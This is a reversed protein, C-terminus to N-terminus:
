LSIALPEGPASPAEVAVGDIGMDAVWKKVADLRNSGVSTIAGAVVGEYSGDANDLPVVVSPQIARILEEGNEIGEVVPYGACSCALAATGHKRLWWVVSLVFILTRVQLMLHHLLSSPWM